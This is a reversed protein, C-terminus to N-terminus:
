LRSNIQDRLEAAVEFHENAIAEDLRRQLVELSEQFSNDNDYSCEPLFSGSHGSHNQLDPLHNFVFYCFPCGVKGSEIVEDTTIGCNPCSKIASEDDDTEAPLSLALARKLFPELSEKELGEMNLRYSEACESCLVISIDEADLQLSIDVRSEHKRCIQCKPM